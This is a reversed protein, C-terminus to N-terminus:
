APGVGEPTCYITLGKHDFAALPMDPTITGRGGMHGLNVIEGVNIGQVERYDFFEYMVEGVSRETLNGLAPAEGSKRTALPGTITACGSLLLLSCQMAAPFRM